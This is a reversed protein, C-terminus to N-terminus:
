SEYSWDIKDPQDQITIEQKKLAQRIEDITKQDKNKKAQQYHQLLTNILASTDITHHEKLGLIKQLFTTYTKQLLTWDAPHLPSPDNKQNHIQNIYKRLEFLAAITKPTNFDYNMAKHCAQCAQAIKPHRQTDPNTPPTIKNLARLANILKYYGKRAAKLGQDSFSIPSRYHAQLMFFRVVMPSYPTTLLHHNGTFCQQLTIFNNASKSMKKNNITVLNNHVWYRAPPTGTSAIAQAIECEHHPFTLDLGGGHIDFHDGLYKKSMATCEIHWGPYGKSWPSDWQMLHGPIAKKWLAFDNPHRKEEKQILPRQGTLLKNTERGSLKGYPHHKQYTQLDFYVSGNVQYAYGQAILKKILTIQEPIHGTARPEINPLLTNLQAMDAHYSNTHRQAVEMPSIGAIRAQRTVKDEGDDGDNMLHGVDTINRIYCVQYGLERLYRVIVDFTIASRAHGLHAAGYVTPGCLYLSVQPPALPKFPTLSRTHTNYIKLDNKM